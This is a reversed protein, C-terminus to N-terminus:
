SKFLEKFDGDFSGLFNRVDLIDNDTIGNKIVQNILPIKNNRIEAEGKASAVIDTLAMKKCYHCKLELLCENKTSALVSIDQTNYKRDCHPCQTNKRVHRIITTLDNLNM